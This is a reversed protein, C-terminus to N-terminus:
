TLLALHSGFNRVAYVRVMSNPLSITPRTPELMIGARGDLSRRMRIVEQFCVTLLHIANELM